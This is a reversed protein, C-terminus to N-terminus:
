ASAVSSTPAASGSSTSGGPASVGCKAQIAQTLRDLRAKATPSELHTIRRQIRDARKTHGAAKAKKEAAHLWPLGAAIQAEAKDIRALARPARTCKFDRHAPSTAPAPTSPSTTTAAGALGGVGLSLVAASAMSVASRKATPVVRSM